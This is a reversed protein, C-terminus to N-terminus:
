ELTAEIRDYHREVLRSLSRTKRLGKLAEGGLEKAQLGDEQWGAANNIAIVAHRLAALAKLRASNRLTKGNFHSTTKRRM